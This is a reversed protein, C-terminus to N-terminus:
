GFRAPDFAVAAASPARGLLHAIVVDAILPALLWGNRRAGRAVLVGPQRSLGVLPLGDPTAARVGASATAHAEALHPYLGAAAARLRAVAQPDIALDSRGEEMTAGVVVGDPSPAIYVGGARVVPGSAPGQGLFRLIQGKIPSLHADAGALPWAGANPGTALVVADAAWSPGTDFRVLGRDFAAAAATLRQGGLGTFAEHLASLAARPELRWDEPTFLWSGAAVGQPPASVNLRAGVAAAKALLLDAAEQSAPKLLAGSRDLAIPAGELAAPWADRAQLLLPYHGASAPDLLTEMLPALMGAAVGSANDTPPAPDALVVEAGRRVLKLALVSGTAGAGAVVVRLGKLDSM